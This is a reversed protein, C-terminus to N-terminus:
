YFVIKLTLSHSYHYVIPLTPCYNQPIDKLCQNIYNLLTYEYVFHDAPTDMNNVEIVIQYNNLVLNCYHQSILGLYQGELKM